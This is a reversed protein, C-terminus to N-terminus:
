IRSAPRDRRFHSRHAHRDRGLRHLLWSLDPHVAHDVHHDMEWIRVRDAIGDCIRQGGGHRLSGRLREGRVHDLPGHGLVQPYKRLGRGSGEMEIKAPLRPHRLGRRVGSRGGRYAGCHRDRDDRSRPLDSHRGPHDPRSVKLKGTFSLREEKPIPPGMTPNIWCRIYIYLIYLGALLFGPLFAGAYLQGISSNDVMGYVILMASPPILIGLTGGALISGAAMYKDYRRQLMEPFAMVGMTVESAGIVGVMAAMMTCAAVSAMAVGGKLWGLWQHVMEYIEAILGGRELICAMFIFLPIADLLYNLMLGFIRTPVINVASPGQLLATFIIGVAGCSFAVPLGMLMLLLMSGFMLITIWEISM